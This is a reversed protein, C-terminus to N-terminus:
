KLAYAHFYIITHYCTVEEAIKLVYQLNETLYKSKSKKKFM